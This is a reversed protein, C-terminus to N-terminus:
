VLKIEGCSIRAGANGTTPSLEHGGKGLDDADAHVMVSRGVVSYEGELKILSDTITGEAVGSENATINGVHILYHYYLLSIKL